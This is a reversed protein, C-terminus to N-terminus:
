PKLTSNIRLQLEDLKSLGKFEAPNRLFGVVGNQGSLKIETSDPKPFSLNLRSQGGTSDTIGIIAKRVAESNGEPIHQYFAELVKQPGVLTMGFSKKNNQNVPTIRM